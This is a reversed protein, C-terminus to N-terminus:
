KFSKEIADLDIDVPYYYRWENASGSKEGYSYFEGKGNSYRLIWGDDTSDRVICLQGDKPFKPWHKYYLEQEEKTALRLEKVDEKYCLKSIFSGGLYSYRKIETDFPNDGIFLYENNETAKCYFVDTDNM